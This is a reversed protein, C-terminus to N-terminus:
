IKKGYYVDKLKKIIIIIITFISIYKTINYILTGHYNIKIIGSKQNTNLLILGNESKDTRTKQNNIKVDYGKYYILPLEMKLYDCNSEYKIITEINNVINYDVDCNSIIINKREEHYNLKPYEIPLYEGYMIEDDSLINKKINIFPYFLNLSFMVISFVFIKKLTKKTANELIVSLAFIFLVTSLIYIRFPFQIFSFINRIIEIKWLFTNTVFLLTIIGSYLFFKLRQNIKFKSKFLYIIPYLYIIGIGCPIWRDIGVGMFIYYPFELLLFLIPVTNQVIINDTVLKNFYFDNTLMQELLPFLFHSGILLVIIISKIITYLKKKCIKKVNIIMFIFLFIIIIYLSIIHSFLIGIIGIPLFYYKELNGYYIEYIGRIVLPVFIITLTEALAGREFMDIFAYSSFAYLTVSILQTYKNQTIGKISIYMTILSFLKIMFLFIKYSNFLNFGIVNLFAPIYLFIDPYFIKSAYGYNNLYNYYIPYGFMGNKINTVIAEIRKLHFNLDGGYPLSEIFFIPLTSIITLIILYIIVKKNKIKKNMANM